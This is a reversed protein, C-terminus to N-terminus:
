QRARASPAGQSVTRRRLGFDKHSEDYVKWSNLDEVQDSVATAVNKKEAVECRPQRGGKM